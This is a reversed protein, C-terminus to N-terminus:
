RCRQSLDQLANIAEHPHMPNGKGGDAREGHAGQKDEIEDEKAGQEGGSNKLMRGGSRIRGDHEAGDEREAQGEQGEAKEDVPEVVAGCGVRGDLGIKALINGDGLAELSCPAMEAAIAPQQNQAGQDDGRGNHSAAQQNEDSGEKETDRGFAIGCRGRQEEQDGHSNKEIHARGNVGDEHAETERECKWGAHAFVDGGPLCDLAAADQGLACLAADKEGQQHNVGDAVREKEDEVKAAIMAMAMPATVPAPCQCFAEGAASNAKPKRTTHAKTITSAHLTRSM